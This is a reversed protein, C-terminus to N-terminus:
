DPYKEENIEEYFKTIIFPVPPSIVTKKQHGLIIPLLSFFRKKYHIRVPFSSLDKSNKTQHHFGGTLFFDGTHIFIVPSKHPFLGPTKQLIARPFSSYSINLFFLSFCSSNLPNNM